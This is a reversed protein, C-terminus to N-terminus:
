VGASFPAPLPLSTPMRRFRRTARVQVRSFESTGARGSYARGCGGIWVYRYVYKVYISPLAPAAREREPKSGIYVVVRTLRQSQCVYM